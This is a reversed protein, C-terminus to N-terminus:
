RSGLAGVGPCDGIPLTRQVSVAGICLNSKGCIASRMVAAGEAGSVGSGAPQSFGKELWGTEGEMVDRAEDLYFSHAAGEEAETLGLKEAYKEIIKQLAVGDPHEYALHEGKDDCLVIFCPGDIGGWYTGDNTARGNAGTSCPHKPFNRGYMPSLNSQWEPITSAINKTSPTPCRCREKIHVDM